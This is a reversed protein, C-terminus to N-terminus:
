FFNLGIHVRELIVILMEGINLSPSESYNPAGYGIIKSHSVPYSNTDVNNKSTNGEITYVYGNSCDSVIGVHHHNSNGASYFYIIDGCQPTYSAGYYPGDHWVGQSKFFDIEDITEATRQIVNDSVGAQKACWTVFSQCWAYNYSIKYLDVNYKTYNNSGSTTGEMSGEHYGIQTKAVAVIDKRQNGTNTYTNEYAASVSLGSCMGLMNVTAIMAAAWKLFWRKRVRIRKM